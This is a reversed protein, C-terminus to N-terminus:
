DSARGSHLYEMGALSGTDNNLIRNAEAVEAVKRQEEDELEYFDEEYGLAELAQDYAEPDEDYNFEM